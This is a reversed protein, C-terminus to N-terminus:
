AAGTEPLPSMGFFVRRLIETVPELDHPDGHPYHLGVGPSGNIENIRFEQRNWPVTIDACIIDVGLLRTGFAQYIRFFLDRNEAAISTLPVRQRRAGRSVGADVVKVRKGEPVISDLRLGHKDLIEVMRADLKLEKYGAEGANLAAVLERASKRGDGTISSLDWRVVDILDGDLVIARYTAGTVHREILLDDVRRFAQRGLVRVLEPESRIDTFVSFSQGSSNPKVVVPYRPRAFEVFRDRCDTWDASAHVYLFEPVPIGAAALRSQCAAKDRLLALMPSSDVGLTARSLYVGGPLDGLLWYSRAGRIERFPIGLRQAANLYVNEYHNGSLNPYADTQRGPADTSETMAPTNEAPARALRSNRRDAGGM